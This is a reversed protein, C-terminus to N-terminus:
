YSELQCEIFINKPKQQKFLEAEKQSQNGGGVKILVDIYDIFAQSEDGFKEGVIIQKEVYCLNCQLAEKPAIGVRTFQKSSGFTAFYYNRERINREQYYLSITDCVAYALAPIGYDTLGSVIEFKGICRYDDDIYKSNRTLAFIIDRLNNYAKNIPFSKASYGIVGIKLVNNEKM